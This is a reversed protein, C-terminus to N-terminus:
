FGRSFSFEFKGNKDKEKDRNTIPFGYYLIMPGVPTNVKIGPGISTAFDGWKLDWAKLEVEGIDVFVIGKFNKVIPWTYEINQVCLTNGGVAQGNQKPGVRRFGFGRVTGLGGAYFRDFVPTKKTSGFADMVGIRFDFEIVHDKRFSWYKTASAQSIYYTKSGGLISGVLETSFGLVSGKTPNYLNDRSDRGISFRARSLTNSTGTDRVDEGASESIDRLKVGELTYGVGARVYETFAKGFNVSFGYRRTEFDTNNRLNDVAYLNVGLSVPKNFLWPEVFSMDLDRTTSGLRGRLSFSQGAGTFTPWRMLDFNRQAIEAFGIFKDVSSVGAGFSLEGTQKEKVRFVLNRRNPATGPETDWTVEEFFGLNDLRQKSRDLKGGDFREGPRIRLERRIVIDKTKTNGRIKVKDVFYLDGETINYVLDVKGTDKNLRVDPMVQCDMYGRDFYYKRVADIDNAMNFQSYVNGPLMELNQWIESEPFLVNGSIKVDGAIYQHGEEVQITIFIMKKARDYDMRPVVKVDLFGNKQYFGEVRDLDERFQDEKFVGPQLFWIWGKPKTKLLAKVEGVKFSKVGEFSIKNIKYEEGESILIYVVAEKTEENVDVESKVEVFKYGKNM